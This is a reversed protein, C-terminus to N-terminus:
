WQLEEMYQALESEVREDPINRLSLMLSVPDVRGEIAFLLPDYRWLEVQLPKAEPEWKDDIVRANELRTDQRFIAAVPVAPPNLMSCASLASEGAMPLGAFANTKEITQVQFVPNTLYPLAMDLYARGESAAWMRTEKGFEEERILHLSHLERSARTISTRTLGLADAAEKKLSYEGKKRYLFFLFLLQASPTLCEVKRLAPNNFRNSLFVGLFPLYMQEPMAIFPIKRSLLSDRQSRTLHPFVFAVPLGAADMYRVMQKELAVVGFRDEESLSVLLFSVRGASLRCFSRGNVMFFPLGSIAAPEESFDVGFIESLEKVM